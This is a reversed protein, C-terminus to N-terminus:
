CAPGRRAASRARPARSRRPRRARTAGRGDLVAVPRPERVLDEGAEGLDGALDLVFARPRRRASRPLQEAEPRVVRPSSTATLRAQRAPRPGHGRGGERRRAPAPGAGLARARARRLRRGRRLAFPRSTSRRATTSSRACSRRPSTTPRRAHRRLPPLEVDADHFMGADRIFGPLVVSVGVGPRAPGRAAGHAFGRLGFKTASYVSGGGSAVKGALSSVFVIHGGGRAAMPEALRRAMVM